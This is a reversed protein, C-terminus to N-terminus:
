KPKSPPKLAQALIERAEAVLKFSLTDRVEKPVDELDMENRQPLFVEKVGSRHAALIKEKIGGVPLINGKLTVEGTMAVDHKVLRETLASAMAALIAVGASPGDKPVAGAPVHVHLDRQLFLKPSIGVSPAQSRLWSRAALASEKMVSGLSGTLLLDGKGEFANVEVFLIEGGTPTWALGTAVGPRDLRSVSEHFIKTQGLFPVLDEGSIVVKGKEGEVRKRAIKRAIKALEKELQRVGAERTYQDVITEIAESSVDWQRKTLGHERRVKPLLHKQAIAEKEKPTYGPIHIVELRDLLPPPITDVMNATALFFVHSLDVDVELYHDSFSHNQEPDLVELLAAAPDGRFDRGVKDLEDLVFVPNCFGARRLGRVIRGPMAGVYTRRHGRIEAEDHIGGLSMRVFKRGLAKAISHGLSTKGVGPPGVLCLIPGRRDKRLRQVALYELIREKVRDLGHHDRDLVKLVRRLELRDKTVKTCPFHILWDLYTRIVAYESALPPMGQLRKIERTAAKFPEIPMKADDIAKRLAELEKASQDEEGLEKRIARMQSRLFHEKKNKEMNETMDAQLKQGLELAVIEKTVLETLGGLRKLVDDENLLAIKESLPCRLHHLSVYAMQVPDRINQVEASINEWDSPYLSFLNELKIKILHVIADMEKASSMKEPRVRTMVEISESEDIWQTIERREIGQVITTLAPADPLRVLRIIRAVVGVSFLDSQNPELVDGDKQPILLLYGDGRTAAEVASVSRPRGV